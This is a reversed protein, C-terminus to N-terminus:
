TKHIKERFLTNVEPDEYGAKIYPTTYSKLSWASSM